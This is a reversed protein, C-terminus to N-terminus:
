VLFGTRLPMPITKVTNDEKLNWTMMTSDGLRKTLTRRSMVVFPFLRRTLRVASSYIQHRHLCSSHKKIRKLLFSLPFVFRSCFGFVYLLRSEWITV